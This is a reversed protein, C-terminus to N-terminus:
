EDPKTVTLIDFRANDRLGRMAGPMDRDETEIPPSGARYTNLRLVPDFPPALVQGARFSAPSHAICGAV